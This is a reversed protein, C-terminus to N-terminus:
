VHALVGDLPRPFAISISRTRRPAARLPDEPEVHLALAAGRPRADRKAPQKQFTPVARARGAGRRDPARSDVGLARVLEDELDTDCVYFGLAEMDARDLDAGLGARELGHAFAREEGSM